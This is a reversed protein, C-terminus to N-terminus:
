IKDLIRADIGEQKCIEVFRQADEITGAVDAGYHM